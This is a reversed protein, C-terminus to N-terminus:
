WLSFTSLDVNEFIHYPPVMPHISKGMNNAMLNESFNTELSGSSSKFACPPVMPHISKGMNNSM